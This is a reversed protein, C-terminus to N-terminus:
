EKIGYEEALKPNYPARRGECRGRPCLQCSQFNVETPFYIGALSKTPVMVFSDTLEVGILDKVDGFLEFLPAQQTIPWDQLSGPNMGSMQGLAYQKQLYNGLYSTAAGLAMQKITDIYYPALFDDSPLEVEDLERGCTAVYPFVRAVNDLNVRLVRSRFVRGDIAVSDERKDNVYSVKYVARPRAVQRTSKVVKDVVSVIDEDGADLRLHKLVDETVVSFPIDDLIQM